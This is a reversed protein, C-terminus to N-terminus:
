STCSTKLKRPLDEREARLPEKKRISPITPNAISAETSTNTNTKRLKRSLAM